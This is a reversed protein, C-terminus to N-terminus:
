TGAPTGQLMLFNLGAREFGEEGVLVDLSLTALDDAWPDLAPDKDLRFHKLYGNCEPCAEAQVADGRGEISLYTLGRSNDCLSCKARVVHWESCCLACHLFRLGDQAGGIRQVSGLPSSGCVPCRGPHAPPGIDPGQLQMASATWHVQLAAGVFPAARLDVGDDDGELLARAQAELWGDAATAVVNAAVGTSPEQAALDGALGRALERWGAGPWWAPPALPPMAAARCQALVPATPLPAHGAAALATEQHEALVAAFILFDRLSHDPAIARLRRARAGFVGSRPLRLVPIAGRASELEGPELVTNTMASEFAGQRM